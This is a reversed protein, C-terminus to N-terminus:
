PAALHRKPVPEGRLRASLLAALVDAVMTEDEPEPRFIEDGTPELEVLLVVRRLLPELLALHARDTRNGRRMVDLDLGGCARADELAVGGMGGAAGLWPTAGDRSCSARSVGPARSLSHVVTALAACPRASGHSGFGRAGPVFAQRPFQVVKFPADGVEPGQGGGIHRGHGLRPERLVTRESPCPFVMLLKM